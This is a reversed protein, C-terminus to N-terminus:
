RALWYSAKIMFVSPGDARFADGFDQFPSFVGPRTRDSASTNWVVYLTSGRVYEWRWVINTRLSKSNFDPNYSLTAPDFDFSKPRALRRIRDYDGVAVFPQVYVQLTMDRQIAYTARFTMNIVNRRLTGYVHDTAGDGDVDQNTIWQAIDKGTTYNTGVSAQLRGSPQLTVSPGFGGNWGGQDDKQGSAIINFRWSRRSDSNVSVYAYSRAPILIPPGGRTDLDDFVQFNHGGEGSIGWFNRFQMSGYGGVFRNFVLRQDNWDQGAYTGASLRRFKKWPDPQEIYASGNVETRNARTRFFGADNVRFDRGFHDFHGSFGYHKTSVMLETIGGGSTAVGGPGPARTAVWHGNWIVRNRNWRFNYDVGGTFADDTKERVAGTFMAGVNSTGNRIDRQLRFTNYSTLPEILVDQVSGAGETTTTTPTVEAYERKTLATLVGYTWGSGKGTLKAAGLVTTRDPRSLVSYGAPIAFRDPTRGIRRSHFLQFLGYPPIFTRSDELFFPRKEPFFTEFVTLNLVAPDQEVQGFDPNVTASLTAGTGIGFRLDTGFSGAVEGAKAPQRKSSGLVFPQLEIRRPPTLTDDFVLHGWRSVEGREGRPRGTWEGVEGRRRIARRSSLGWIQGPTPSSNFRMQSFPIRFEAMWGEATIATRVEWVADFSSDAREDDFFYMDSQVGSPNAQFAYGTLHDHRPDFGVAILDTPPNEDRRGLGRAIADPTRDYCRLAVYLHRDDYAVQMETRESLPKMNDPEWQVWNEARPALLWVEDDLTGDIKPPSTTLRFAHLIKGDKAALAPENAPLVVPRSVASVDVPPGSQPFAPAAVGGFCLFFALGIHKM